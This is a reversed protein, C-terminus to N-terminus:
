QPQYPVPSDLPVSVEFGRLEDTTTINQYLSRDRVFAYLEADTAFVYPPVFMVGICCACYGLIYWGIFSLGLVFIEGKENDTMRKSLELVRDTPLDPNEALIYSVYYYEYSKVIGPIVFLLSWLAIHLDNIFMTKVVKMYRGNCFAWFLTSLDTKGQRAEMMYRRFGVLFVNTVFARLAFTVAFAIVFVVLIVALMALAVAPDDMMLRMNGSSASSFSGSLSGLSGSSGGAASLILTALFIMWYKKKLVEKARTKLMDRTWM